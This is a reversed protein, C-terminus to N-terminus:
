PLNAVNWGGGLAKILLVSANFRNGLINIATRENNLMATQAVIIDLYSTIGAEYQNTVVVVTQQASKVAEDQVQAESELIRLAALNDEVEQFASLVTQRYSAVNGDYLARAQDTLGARLGGDFVTESVAPGVAWFRSPASLWQSLSGSQFGGTAGLSVTPYFAAEAAGIQANAAAVLRETSAIDPRQQLVKSPIGAPIWPPTMSMTLPAPSIIVSSAPKGILLAIAHELQARAVGVDIAQAQTTKLQTEALLVDARSAVGNAYRNNTLDLSKQFDATSADLLQKETDLTRLQFYDQALEIQASLLATELDAASAQASAQSSEVLRRIRGWVDIEWSVDVPLTYLMSSFRSGASRTITTSVSSNNVSVGITVTPFYAARAQEVLARAQRFQAEALAVNQNSVEVQAEFANLQPDSFMEWWNGRLVTDQPQAVQWGANEKYAAPVEVTPRVYNPGVTCSALFLLLTLLTPIIWDTVKIIARLKGEGL